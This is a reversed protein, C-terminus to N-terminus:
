GKFKVIGPLYTVVSPVFTILAALGVMILFFPFSARAIRGFPKELMGQIVFLNFGVPPVIQAMEVVIVM